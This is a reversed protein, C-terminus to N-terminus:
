RPQRPPVTEPAACLRDILWDATVSAILAPIRDQADRQELAMPAPQGDGVLAVLEEAM